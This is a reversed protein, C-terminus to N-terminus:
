SGSRIHCMHASNIRVVHRKKNGAVYTLSTISYKPLINHDNDGSWSVCASKSM